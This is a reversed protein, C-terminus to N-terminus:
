SELNTEIVTLSPTVADRDIAVEIRPERLTTSQLIEAYAGWIEVDTEVRVWDGSTLAAEIWGDVEAGFDGIVVCFQARAEETSNVLMWDQDDTIWMQRDSAEGGLTLGGTDSARVEIMPTLCRAQFARFTDEIQASAPGGAAILGWVAAVLTTVSFSCTRYLNKCGSKTM